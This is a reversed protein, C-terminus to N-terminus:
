HDSWTAEVNAGNISLVCDSFELRVACHPFRPPVIKLFQGLNTQVEGCWHGTAPCCLQFSLVQLILQNAAHRFILNTTEPQVLDFTRFYNICFRLVKANASLSPTGPNWSTKLDLFEQYASGPTLGNPVPAKPYARRWLKYIRRLLEGRCVREPVEFQAEFRSRQGVGVSHITWGIIGPGAGIKMVQNDKAYQWELCSPSTAERNFGAELLISETDAEELMRSVSTRQRDIAQANM